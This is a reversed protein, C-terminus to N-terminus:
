PAETMPNAPPSSLGSLPLLPGPRPPLELGLAEAKCTAQPAGQGMAADVEPDQWAQSPGKEPQATWPVMPWENSFLPSQPGGGFVPTIAMEQGM